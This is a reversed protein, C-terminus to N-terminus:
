TWVALMDSSGAIEFLELFRVLTWSEQVAQRARFNTWGDWYQRRGSILLSFHQRVYGQVLQQRLPM